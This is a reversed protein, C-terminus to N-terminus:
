GIIETECRCRRVSDPTAGEHITQNYAIRDEYQVSGGNQSDALYASHSKGNEVAALWGPQAM